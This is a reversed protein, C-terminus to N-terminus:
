KTIMGDNNIDYLSFTWRLKDQISGRALVSLGIVFDTFTISGTKDPDFTNFVYHAYQNTDAGKPFFRAYITKFTDEHVVGSPAD